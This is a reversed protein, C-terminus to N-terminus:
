FPNNRGEDLNESPSVTREDLKNIRDIADENFLVKEQELLGQNYTDQNLSPSSLSDIRFVTISFFIVVFAGGIFYRYKNVFPPVTKLFSLTKTKAQDLM